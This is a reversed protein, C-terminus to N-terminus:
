VAGGSHDNGVFFVKKQVEPPFWSSAAKSEEFKM